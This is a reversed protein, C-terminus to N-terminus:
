RRRAPPTLAGRPAPPPSGTVISVIGAISGFILTAYFVWQEGGGGPVLVDGEPRGALALLVLPALWAVFPASLAATRDAFVRGMRPFVLGGVVAFLASVPAMSTGARLPVLLLELVASLAASLCVLVLGAAVVLVSSRPATV